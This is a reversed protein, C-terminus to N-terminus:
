RAVCANHFYCYTISCCYASARVMNDIEKLAYAGGVKIYLVSDSIDRLVPFTMLVVDILHPSDRRFVKFLKKKLSFIGFLLQLPDIGAWPDTAGAPTHSGRSIYSIFFTALDHEVSGFLRYISILWNWVESCSRKLVAEDIYWPIDTNRAVSLATLRDTLAGGPGFVQDAVAGGPGLLDGTVIAGVVKCCSLLATCL